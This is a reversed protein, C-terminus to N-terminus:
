YISRMKVGGFTIIYKKAYLVYSFSHYSDTLSGNRYQNLIKVDFNKSITFTSLYKKKFFILM